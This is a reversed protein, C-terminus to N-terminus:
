PSVAQVGPDARTETSPLSYPFGKCTKGVSLMTVHQLDFTLTVGPNLNTIAFSDTDVSPRRFGDELRWINEALVLPHLFSLHFQSVLDMQLSPTLTYTAPTCIRLERLRSELGRGSDRHKLIGSDSDQWYLPNRMPRVQKWLRVSYLSIISLAYYVLGRICPRKNTSNTQRCRDSLINDCDCLNM